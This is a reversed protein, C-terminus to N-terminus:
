LLEFLRANFLATQPAAKVVVTCGAALAPALARLLLTIPANWPVIIGAVGRPEKALMAFRGAEIESVRGFINRALGAYYRTESIGNTIEIEAERLTKGNVATLLRTLEPKAGELLSAYELLVEARQ